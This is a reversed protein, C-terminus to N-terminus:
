PPNPRPKLPQKMFTVFSLDRLRDRTLIVAVLSALLAALLYGAGYAVPPSALDLLTLSVNGFAAVATVILAPRRADLYLLLLMAALLLAQASAAAVATRLLPVQDPGLGLLAALNPATALAFLLVFSQIKALTVLGSRVTDAMGKQAEMIRDLPAKSEIRGFFRRYHLYFETEISVLFVAAAPITLAYAFLTATDYAPFLRLLGGVTVGAPSSWYIVKDAWFGICYLSGVLALDWYKGMARFPRFDLTRQSSFEAHVRESLLTLAVVQGLTFGTLVGIVGFQHGLWIGSGVSLAYGVAFAVLISTYDRCASVFTMALWLLSIVIFLGGAVLKYLLETPAFALVPACVILLALATVVQVTTFFPAVVETKQVYLYDALVRTVMMQFGGTVILSAAFAYTITAFLLLSDELVLLSATASRLVVLALVSSLWPGAHIVAGTLYAAGGSSYSNGAVLQKLYLGIGAM